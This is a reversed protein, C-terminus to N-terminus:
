VFPSIFPKYAKKEKKAETTQKYCNPMFELVRNLNPIKHVPFFDDLFQQAPMSRALYKKIEKGM